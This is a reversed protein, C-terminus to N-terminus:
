ALTYYAKPGNAAKALRGSKMLKRIEYYAQERDIHLLDAVDATTVSGHTEALKLILEPYRVKDIDTQRVYEKAKGTKRYVKSSLTYSRRKGYGTAEVLGAETLTELTQRLQAPSIDVNTGLDDAGVRRLQKLADLVLLSQLPLPSTRKENERAVMAVFATDPESRSIFVSVKGSTSASYDPLPRGYQLSGEFIRDIGRGTREALGIRKLADMLRPNRGHPDATLLNRVSIGEVFGGPNSITLGTDDILIRVRGLMSYDRHGFANVVAERIADRDFTPVPENFLGFPIETVPNWPEISSIIREITYLLPEHFTVNAKVDTGQLVQFVAESTPVFRQLAETKGILLLGTLTPTMKDGVTTVLGLAQELEADSLELLAKDSKRYTAVIKRLREIELQDFDSTEADPIPQNSFDLRGLDSLRSTLEYPYMPTTEPEGDLRVRRKLIKGTSTAIIATSRPVGVRVIPTDAGILEVRAPVPPVTKAAILSALRATDRHAPQAGSPTGDDEVGIYLSGGETNSLAVVEEVIVNDSLTKRDSKFEVDLSEKAPLEVM